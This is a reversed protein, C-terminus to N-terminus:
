LKTPTDPSPNVFYSFLSVFTENLINKNEQYDIKNLGIPPSNHKTSGKRNTSIFNNVLFVFINVKNKVTIAPLDCINRRAAAAEGRRGEGRGGEGKPRQGAIARAGTQTRGEGM